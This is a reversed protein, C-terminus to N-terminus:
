YSDAFRVRSKSKQDSKKMTLVVFPDSKGRLDTSPLDEASLVTVSLVGRIVFDKKTSASNVLSASDIGGTGQLLAREMSTLGFDPNSPNMFASETGFPCYLLELHVKGFTDHDWVELMLLEHLGDEVVFDFTQNWVPNLTDNLVRSKSKQDSKKMTLVVFPDSKGRLDTSPLDEASLVTVSLVGRIVFDKKTSASNVLSASDIGGTGQLLAREMSTLGFDPNSPNM